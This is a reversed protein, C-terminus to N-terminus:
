GAKAPGPLLPPVPCDLSDAIARFLEAEGTTIEGDHLICNSMAKLLQPKQLLKIKNLQDLAQDVLPLEIMKRPLLELASFRLEAAAGAFAAQAQQADGSGAHALLSLLLQCESRLQRLELHRILPTQPELNHVLIRHLSWEVLSVRQDTRILLSLARKFSQYQSESLTRLAPLALEILPLRLETASALAKRAITQLAKLEERSYEQQLMKWQQKRLDPNRNLLLGYVLGRASFSDHAADHLLPDIRTLLQRAHTLHLASPQGIAAVGEQLQASGLVAKTSVEPTEGALNSVQEAALPNPNSTTIEIRPYEGNWRPQIRRIREPLPPHTAMMANFATSVGQSFYMHSFEAAHGTELRSGSSYGGIKQLAGAIGDPNRTFQVASADALFERQRSVAAKILNGFFTGAYGIIILGIGAGLIFAPSNDKRSRNYRRNVTSRLMLQGILGLLLIGNLLAVLRINLRMDGHFIHSFEHAVV